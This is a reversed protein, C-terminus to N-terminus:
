KSEWAVIAYELTVLIIKQYIECMLAIKKTYLNM